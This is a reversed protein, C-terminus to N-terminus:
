DIQYEVTTIDNKPLTKWLQVENGSRLYVDYSTENEVFDSITKEVVKGDIPVPFKGNLIYHFQEKIDKGISIKRIKNDM